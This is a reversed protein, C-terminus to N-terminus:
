RRPSRPQDGTRRRYHRQAKARNGCASMSCWRRTAGKSDDIFLWRCQPNACARLPHRALSLLLDAASWLVPALVEPLTPAVLMLAWGKEAGPSTGFVWQRRAPAAAVLAGLATIDAEDPAQPPADAAPRDSAGSAVPQAAIVSCIRYLRERLQLADDFLAAAATEDAAPLAQLRAATGADVVGSMTLWRVLAAYDVLSETPAPQGRWYRTNAFDLCLTPSPAPALRLPQTTTPM